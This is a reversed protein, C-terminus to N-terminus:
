KTISRIAARSADLQRHHELKAKALTSFWDAVDLFGESAATKAMAPYLEEGDRGEGASMAALNHETDGITMGTVPDGFRRLLDLHGDVHHRELEALARLLKATEGYGEIEATVAFFLYRLRAQAEIAFASKLNDHTRSGKLDAM